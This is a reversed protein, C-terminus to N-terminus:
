WNFLMSFNMQPGLDWQWQSALQQMELTYTTGISFLLGPTFVNGIELAIGAGTSVINESNSEPTPADSARQRGSYSGSIGTLFVVATPPLARNVSFESIMRGYSLGALLNALGDQRNVRVFLSSQVYSSHSYRRLSLGTGVISGGAFGVAYRSAPYNNDAAEASLALLFLAVPFYSVLKM